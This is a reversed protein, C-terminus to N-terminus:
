AWDKITVTSFDYAQLWYIGGWSATVTSTDYVLLHYVDGGWLEVGTAAGPSACPDGPDGSPWGPPCGVNRVYVEDEWHIAYDIVNAPNPPALGNNIMITAAQPSGGAALLLASATALHTMLHLALRLRPM